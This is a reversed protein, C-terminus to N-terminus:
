KANEIKNLIDLYQEGQKKNFDAVADTFENHQEDTLHNIRGNTKESVLKSFEDCAASTPYDEDHVNALFLTIKDSSKVSSACGSIMFSFISMLILIAISKKM